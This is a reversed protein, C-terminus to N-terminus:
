TRELDRVNEQTLSTGCVICSQDFVSRCFLIWLHVMEHMKAGFGQEGRLQQMRTNVKQIIYKCNADWSLKNDEITWFFILKDVVEINEGKLGLRTTKLLTLYWRRPKRRQLGNSAMLLTIMSCSTSTHQLHHLHLSETQPPKPCPNALGPKLNRSWSQRLGLRLM